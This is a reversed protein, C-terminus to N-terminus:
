RAYAPIATVMRRANASLVVACQVNRIRDAFFFDTEVGCTVPSFKGQM